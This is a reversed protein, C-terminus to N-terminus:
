EELEFKGFSNVLDRAKEEDNLELQQQKFLKYDVNEQPESSPNLIQEERKIPTSISTATASSYKRSTSGSRYPSYNNYQSISSSSPTRNMPPPQNYHQFHPVQPLQATTPIGPPQPNPQPNYYYPYIFYAGTAPSSMMPPPPAQHLQQPALTPPLPSSSQGSIVINPPPMNSNASGISPNPLNSNGYYYKQQFSNREFALNSIISSGHNNYSNKRSTNGYSKPNYNYNGGQQVNSPIVIQPLIAPPIYSSPHNFLQQILYNNFEPFKDYRVTLSRGEFEINDFLEILKNASEKNGTTVIAFGRSKTVMGQSIVDYNSDENSSNHISQMPIEVRLIFINSEPDLEKSKTIFFKRLSAWTSTYPVNGVFLRRPNVKIYETNEENRIIMFEDDNSQDPLIVDSDPKSLSSPTDEENQPALEDFAYPKGIEEGEDEDVKEPIDFKPDFEDTTETENDHTITKFPTLSDIPSESTPSNSSSSDFSTTKLRNNAVMNMIFPPVPQKINTNQNNSLNSSISSFSSSNRASTFSNNRSNRRTSDFSKASSSRRSLYQRPPTQSQYNPITTGQYIHSQMQNAYNYDYQPPPILPAIYPTNQSQNAYYANYYPISPTTPGLSNSSNNRSSLNSSSSSRLEFSPSSAFSVDMIKNLWEYGNLIGILRNCFTWDNVEVVASTILKKSEDDDDEAEDDTSGDQKTAGDGISNQTFSVIDFSASFSDSDFNTEIISDILEKLNDSTISNPLNSFYISYTAISPRNKINANTSNNTPIGQYQYIGAPFFPNANKNFVPHHHNQYQSPNLTSKLQNSRSPNANVEIKDGDSALQGTDSDNTSM